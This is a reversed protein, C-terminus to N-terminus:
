AQFGDQPIPTLLSEAVGKEGPSEEGTAKLYLGNAPIQRLSKDRPAKQSDVNGKGKHTGHDTRYM